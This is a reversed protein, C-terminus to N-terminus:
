LNKKIKKRRRIIGNICNKDGCWDCQFGTQECGIGIGTIGSISKVPHMLSTESLTINCWGLPLLSFLIQQESVSWNCYGPSFSDTIGFGSASVEELIKDQLRNAAKEVVVTGIVDLIYALLEDGEASKMRSYESIGKGATCLFLAAQSAKNLKSVITKGPYFFQNNIGITKAKTDIVINEFIQYGGIIMCFEPAQKLGTEIIEPFPAPSMGPEFGLLEEIDDPVISLEAFSFFHTKM